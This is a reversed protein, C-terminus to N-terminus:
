AREPEEGSAAPFLRADGRVSVEVQDGPGPSGDGPVRALVTATVRGSPDAPLELEVLVDHGFYETSRVVAPIRGAGSAQDDTVPTLALQEPRVAVQVPGHPKPDVQPLTGLPSRVVRGDAVGPVVVLDGLFSATDRDVPHEYVERPPGVQVINGSRMIALQDAFSLAEGQDHTVLLVTVDQAALADAVARRTSSRLAADLASFPEDLLMVKPEPALSRALAVRQQQGGSLQDPRRERFDAPLGVLELLEEVRGPSRRMGGPLGFAINEGVSLHPFLNGEQALYGIGRKEPPTWAGPAVVPRGDFAVRGDDPRHFGAVVRLLTTKGCGSPGLIATTTGPAVDLDVDRLVVNDGYRATVGRVELGSM